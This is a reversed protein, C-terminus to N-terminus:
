RHPKKLRKSNAIFKQTNTEKIEKPCFIDFNLQQQRSGTSMPLPIIIMNTM